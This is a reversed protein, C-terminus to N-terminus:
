RPAQAELTAAVEAASPYRDAPRKAMLRRVVEALRPPVEGRLSELPRPEQQCHQRLKELLTGGPFPVQGTLTYYLTCGLGYLDARHDVPESAMVQEPSLYDLTGLVAGARTLDALSEEGSGPQLRALGLDLLKVLGKDLTVLLNAPKVDRHVLGHEHAHQLGLAAQRIYERAQAVPLPGAQQVLRKLDSGEAYEMAIFYGGRAVDADYAHIVNPHSLRAVAQIERRFRQVAHAEALRARCIMKVAALRRMLRHRAKFVQGMGGQGLPQLLVYPGLRLHRGKGLVLQEAQFPTLWGRRSLDEALARSASFTTQLSALQELQDQELLQHQRLTEVLTALSVTPM